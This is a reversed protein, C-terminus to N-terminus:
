PVCDAGLLAAAFPCLFLCRMDSEERGRIEQWHGRNGAGLKFPAM